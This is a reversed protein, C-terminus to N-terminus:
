IEKINIYNRHSSIKKTLDKMKRGFNVTEISFLLIFIPFINLRPQVFMSLIAGFKSIELILYFAKM